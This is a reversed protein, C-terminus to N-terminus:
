PEGWGLIEVRSVDASRDASYSILGGAKVFESWEYMAPVQLRAVLEIVQDRQVQFLPDSGM